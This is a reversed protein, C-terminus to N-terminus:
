KETSVGKNRNPSQLTRSKNSKASTMDAYPDKGKKSSQHDLMAKGVGIFGKDYNKMDDANALSYKRSHAFYSGHSENRSEVDAGRKRPAENNGLNPLVLNGDEKDVM